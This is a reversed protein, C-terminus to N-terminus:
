KLLKDPHTPIPIVLTLEVFIELRLSSILPVVLAVLIIASEKLPLPASIVLM